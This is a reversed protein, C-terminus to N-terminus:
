AAAPEPDEPPPPPQSEFQLPHYQGVSDVMEVHLHPGSSHGTNGSIGIRDGRVVQWGAQVYLTQLHAYVLTFMKGNSEKIQQRVRLGFGQKPDALNEWGAHTVLGDTMAYVMTGEPVAFDTGKHQGLNNVKGRVWIGSSNMHRNWLRGWKGYEASVPYEYPVPRKFIM